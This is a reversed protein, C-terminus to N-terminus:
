FLNLSWISNILHFGWIINDYIYLQSLSECGSHVGFTFTYTINVYVNMGTFETQSSAAKVWVYVGRM